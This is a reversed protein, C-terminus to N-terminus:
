QAVPLPAFGAAILLEAIRRQGSANPHTHDSALLSGADSTGQPGNFAHYVDVCAAAHLAAVRCTERAFANVVAVSPADTGPGVTPDGIVDNYDTTVRLATPKGDRLSQIEGLIGDLESGHRQAQQTVCAGVYKPWNFVGDPNNGDCPDDTSNWPTDNHGITVIVVDAQSVSARVYADTRIRDLLRAGTLNDHTSLNYPVVAKGTAQQLAEAVLTTFDTCGGCDAQGFPISDGITV